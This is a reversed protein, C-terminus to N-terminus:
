YSSLWEFDEARYEWCLSNALHSVRSEDMQESGNMLCYGITEIMSRFQTQISTKSQDSLTDPLDSLYHVQAPSAYRM